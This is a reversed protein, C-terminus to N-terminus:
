HGASPMPAGTKMSRELNRRTMYINYLNIGVGLLAITIGWGLGTALSRWKILNKFHKEMKIFAEDTHSVGQKELAQLAHAMRDKVQHASPIEWRALPSIEWSIRKLTNMLGGTAEPKAKEVILGPRLDKPSLFRLFLRQIMPTAFFWFTYGMSDRTAVERVENKSRTSAALIRSMICLGYIVKIQNITAFALEEFDLFRMLGNVKFNKMGAKGLAEAGTKGAIESAMKGAMEFAVGAASGFRPAAASPRSAFRTASLAAQVPQSPLGPLLM